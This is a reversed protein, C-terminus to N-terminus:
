LYFIQPTAVSTKDIRIKLRRFHSICKPTKSTLIAGGPSSQDVVTNSAENDARGLTELMFIGCYKSATKGGLLRFSSALLNLSCVFLYLLGLLLLFKGCVKAVRLAVSSRAKAETTGPWPVTSDHNYLSHLHLVTRNHNHFYDLDRLIDHNFQNM